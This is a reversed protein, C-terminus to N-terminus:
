PKSFDVSLTVPTSATVVVTRRRDGHQPHKFLIEHTGLPVELKVPTTKGSNKGDIWVEAWPEANLSVDAMPMVNISLEEGPELEVTRVESYGFARNSLTLQHRGPSLMLRGQEATGIAKGNESIDLEIPAFVTLIGSGVPVDLKLTKGAEVRIAKKVTGRDTTFTLTHRGAAVADLTLPSEGVSKGDLLVSAGPPSTVIVISGASGPRAPAAEVPAAPKTSVEATPAPDSGTGKPWLAVGAGIGALSLVVVAAVVKWPFATAEPAGREVYPLATM